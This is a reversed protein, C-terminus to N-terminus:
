PAPEQLDNKTQSSQSYALLRSWRRVSILNCIVVNLFSWRKLTYTQRWNCANYLSIAVSCVHHVGHVFRRWQHMSRMLSTCHLQLAFCMSLWGMKTYLRCLARRYQAGYRALGSLVQNRFWVLCARRWSMLQGFVIDINWFIYTNKLGWHSLNSCAIYCGLFLTGSIMVYPFRQSIMM